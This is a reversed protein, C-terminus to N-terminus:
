NDKSLSFDVHPVTKQFVFIVEENNKVMLKTEFSLGFQQKIKLFMEQMGDMTWAHFHISFDAQDLEAAAESEFQALAAGSRRPFLGKDMGHAAFIKAFEAYAPKRSWQPGEEYDRVLHAFPTPQRVKDFSHRMEPLSIYAIGGHKLVRMINKFGKIPDEFHELVHNAIVFDQSFDGVQQLCEGDGVIDPQVISAIDVGFDKLSLGCIKHTLDMEEIKYKDFYRVVVGDAVPLPSAFAGIELGIGQLYAHSITRRWDQFDIPTTEVPPEHQGQSLLADIKGDIASIGNQITTVGLSKKVFNKFKYYLM